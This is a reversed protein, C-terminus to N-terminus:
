SSTNTPRRWSRRLASVAIPRCWSTGCNTTPPTCRSPWTTNAIKRPWAASARPCASPPSRSGGPASAWVTATPPRRGLGAAPRRSEIAARGHGDGGRPQAARWLLASMGTQRRTQRREAARRPLCSHRGGQCVLRQLQLVQELIEGTTLNRVLGDLGTACFACGMACGVQTSLCVTCHQKDDRLLVCEIRQPRGPTRPATKGLRRGSQPTPCRPCDLDPVRRRTAQSPGRASRDNGRLRGGAAPLAVKAGTGRSLGAPRTALVLRAALRFNARSTPGYSDTYRSHGVKAM